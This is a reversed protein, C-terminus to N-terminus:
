DFIPFIFTDGGVPPAGVDPVEDIPVQITSPITGMLDGMGVMNFTRFAQVPHVETIVGRGVLSFSKSAVTTKSSTVAGKGIATRAMAILMANKTATGKGVLNFSKSAVIARSETPVGKGILNFNTIVLAKNHAVVGKGVTNFTKSLTAARTFTPVGKGVANRSLTGRLAGRTPVGKGILSNTLVCVQKINQNAAFDVNTNNTDVQLTFTFNTTGTVPNNLTGTNLGVQLYLTEDQLLETNSAVNISITVQKFTGGDGTVATLNWTETQTGSAILTGTDTSPKYRWLSAKFTPTHNGGLFGTGGSSDMTVNIKVELTGSSLYANCNTDDGPTVDTLELAWGLKALTTAANFTNTAGTTAPDFTREVNDQTHTATVTQTTATSGNVDDLNRIDIGAGTDVTVNNRPYLINARNLPDM